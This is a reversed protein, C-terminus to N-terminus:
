VTTSTTGMMPEVVEVVLNRIQKDGIKVIITPSYTSGAQQQQPMAAKLIKELGATNDKSLSFSNIATILEGTQKMANNPGTTTKVNLEAISKTITAFNFSKDKDLKNLTFVIGALAASFVLLGGMVFPNTFILGVAGMALSLTFLSDAISDTNALVSFLKVFSEIMSGIGMYMLGLGAAALGIAAAVVFMSVGLELIPGAAAQAAGAVTNLAAAGGAAAPAATSSAAFLASFAAAAAQIFIAVKGIIFMAAFSAIIGILLYNFPGLFDILELVGSLFMSFKDIVPGMIIAFNAAIMQLKEQIPISKQIADNLLKQENAREADAKAAREAEANSMSLVRSAEEITKFGAADAIMKKEYFSMENFSMGAEDLRTRLLDIAAAPNEASAELLEMSNIFGGGLAANLKGAAQAAGEFTQFKEAIAILDGVAVGTAKSQIELDKFVNVMNNGYAALQNSAAAFDQAVQQPPKGIALAFGALEESTKGAQVESMGMIQTLTGITKASEQSAIGLRDLKAASITLQQQSSANLNTFTNLNTYLGEIAKGAEAFSVGFATAGRSTDNLVGLLEKNYGAIKAISVSAQDYAVFAGFTMEQIKMVASLMVSQVAGGADEVEDTFGKMVQSPNAFIQYTLSNKNSEDIGLLNALAKGSSRARNLNEYAEEAEKLKLVLKELQDASEGDKIAKEVAKEALSVSLQLEKQKVDLLDKGADALKKAAEFHSNYYDSTKKLEENIGKIYLEQKKYEDSGKQKNELEKEALRLREELQATTEEIAM